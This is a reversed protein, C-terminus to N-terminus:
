SVAMLKARVLDNFDNLSADATRLRRVRRGAAKWSHLCEAAASEGILGRDVLLTLEGVGAVLPFKAINGASGAAWAPQMLVGGDKLRTAPALVTEIGEGLYLRNNAPWLKIARPRPWRGLMRREIKQASLTLAVRHIGAPEDTEVDRFLALLCPHRDGNFSCRPHFRLARDIDAPLAAVDIGRVETLYEEALTGTIAKAQEWLRAAYVLTEADAAQTHSSSAATILEEPLDSSHATRAADTATIIHITGATSKFAQHTTVVTSHVAFRTLM